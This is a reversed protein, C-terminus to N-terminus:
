ALEARVTPRRVQWPAMEEIQSALSLLTAEANLRSALQVGVPWGREAILAPVVIAPQGTQNFLPTNPTLDLTEEAVRRLARRLASPIPATRLVRLGLRQPLGQVRESLRMPPGAVAATLLVDYNKHFAALAQQARAAVERAEQLEVASLARGIQVFLWTTSDFVRPSPKRGIRRGWGAVKVATTVAVQTVYAQALATADISPRAIDVIHGREELLRAVREVAAVGDPDAAEGFLAETTLAIRQPPCPRTCADIFGERDALVELLGAVDRVSRALPGLQGYGGAEAGPAVGLPVRGRTPKLGVVGCLSAAVRLSGMGDGALAVPVAGAAVLAAAGGGAGGATRDPVWPNRTAGRWTSGQTAFLGFEPTNAQAVCGLGSALLRTVSPDNAPARHGELFRSTSSVPLGAMAGHYDELVMPVGGFPGALEQAKATALEYLRSVVANLKPNVHEISRVACETVDRPGVEGRRVRMALETADITPYDNM